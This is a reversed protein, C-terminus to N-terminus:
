KVRNFRVNKIRNGNLQIENLYGNKDKLIQIAYGNAILNEPTILECSEADGAIKVEYTKNNQYRFSIVSGTEKNLFSGNLKNFDFGSWDSNARKLTYPAHSTYYATIEMEKKSNLKFEQKFATDNWQHFVNASERELRIDNRGSRILFLVSDRLEFRFTYGNETQYSGPIDAINIFSGIGPPKILYDPKEPKIKLLVAAVERSQMAPITKGSNTLTVITLNPKAFRLTTAKWAGTSGEHFRYAMGNYEGFELGFGYENIRSGPIRIQTKALLGTSLYASHKEQLIKEWQLQDSLTTFLNGDGNINCIWNYGTWTDFNFYPNAVPGKIKTYDDIFGTDPMGLQKFLQYTYSIFSQGSVKEVLGALIIYNSNSYLYQSGPEFNLDQQKSLLTIADTNNFTQKWWTIGTLSWLDYVDRIGSSHNLLNEIKIKSKVDPYLKPFYIRIDDQLNLKKQEALILIALATFQKANSAINFRSKATIRTSDKLDAYGAYKEYIIIGDKVIGTAIGPGGKVVDQLAIADIKKIEDKSLEIQANVWTSYISFVILFIFKLKM